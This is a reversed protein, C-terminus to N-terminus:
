TEFGGLRFHLAVEGALRLLYAKTTSANTNGEKHATGAFSCGLSLKDAWDGSRTPQLQSWDIHM